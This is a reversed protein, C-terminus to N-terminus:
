FHELVKIAVGLSYGRNVLKRIIKDRSRGDLRGKANYLDDYEIIKSALEIGNELEQQPNVTKEIAEKITKDAVGKARLYDRIKQTGRNKEFMSRAMAEAYYEDNIYGDKEIEELANEIEDPSFGKERLKTKVQFSSKIGRGLYHMGAEYANKSM